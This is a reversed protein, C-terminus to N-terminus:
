RYTEEPNQTTVRHSGRVQALANALADRDSGFTEPMALMLHEVSLYDDGMESRISDARDLLDRVVRSLQPQTGYSRPLRAIEEELRNRIAPVQQGLAQLIPVALGDDQSILALGLHALVVEPNSRQSAIGIAGEVAERTKLTWKNSDM